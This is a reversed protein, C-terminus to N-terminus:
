GNKRELELEVWGFIQTGAIDIAGLSVERWYEVM